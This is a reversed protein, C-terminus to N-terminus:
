TEDKYRWKYGYATHYRSKRSRKGAADECVKRISSPDGHMMARGADSISEYEAIVELTDRDLQLVKKKARM